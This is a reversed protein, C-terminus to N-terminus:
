YAHVRLKFSGWSRKWPSVAKPFIGLTTKIQQLCYYIRGKETEPKTKDKSVWWSDFGTKPYCLWVLPCSFSPNIVQLLYSFLLFIESLSTQKKKRKGVMNWYYCVDIEYRLINWISVAFELLYCYPTKGPPETTFFGGALASSMPETKIKSSGVHRLAIFGM